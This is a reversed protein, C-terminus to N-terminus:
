DNNRSNNKFFPDKQFIWSSFVCGLSWIDVSYDYYQYGVLLEPAKYNPSGVKVKYDQEPHYFEALGFDILRLKKTSHDIMINAIKIDRHM